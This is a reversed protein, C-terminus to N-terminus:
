CFALIFARPSPLALMGEPKAFWTELLAKILLAYTPADVAASGAKLTSQIADLVLVLTNETAQPLLPLLKSLAVAAQSADVSAKLHRFFSHNLIDREAANRSAHNPLLSM